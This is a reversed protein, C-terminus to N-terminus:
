GFRPKFLRSSTSHYKFGIARSDVVHLQILAPYVMEWYLDDWDTLSAAQKITVTYIRDKNKFFNDFTTEYHVFSFALVFVTFGTTLGLLNILFGTTDRRASRFATLLYHKFM